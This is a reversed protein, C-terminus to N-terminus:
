PPGTAPSGLQQLLLLRLLLRPLITPTQTFEEHVHGTSAYPGVQLANFVEGGLTLAKLGECLVVCGTTGAV